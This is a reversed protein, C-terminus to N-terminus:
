ASSIPHAARSFLIYWSFLALHAVGENKRNDLRPLIGCLGRFIVKIHVDSVVNVEDEQESLLRFEWIQIIYKVVLIYLRWHPANKM